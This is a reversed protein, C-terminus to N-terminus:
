ADRGALPPHISISQFEDMFMAGTTGGRLPRTSQFIGIGLAFVHTNTGGRLPRTSQFEVLPRLAHGGKYDRGALPPHISIYVHRDRRRAGRDRGALPPHISIVATDHILVAPRDRGALPPHISIALGSPLM